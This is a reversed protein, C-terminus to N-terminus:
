RARERPERDRPGDVASLASLLLSSFQSSKAVAVLLGTVSLLRWPRVIAVLAGGAAALALFRWPSRSAYRSLVPTALEVGLHAPHHRWWTGAVARLRAFWGEPEAQEPRQPPQAIQEIIAQRSRALRAVAGRVPAGDPRRAHGDPLFSATPPPPGPSM